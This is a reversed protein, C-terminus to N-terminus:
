TIPGTAYYAKCVGSDLDTSIELFSRGDGSALLSPSFNRCGENNVGPTAVPAPVERWAGAGGRENVLVAAGNGVAHSGDANVLMESVLVVVGSATVDINPTHRPYKGDATRVGTGLVFPDGFDWGDASTRVYIACLPEPLNCVEYAMLYSGDPLRRVVPMGPRVFFDSHAVTDRQDGWRVGDASRVQVIKQDHRPKDSEDAWFLVLQGDAAMSIEPEWANYQNPSM